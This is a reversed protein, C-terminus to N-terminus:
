LCISLSINKYVYAIKWGLTSLDSSFILSDQIPWLHTSTDKQELDAVIYKKLEDQSDDIGNSAVIKHGDHIIFAQDYDKGFLTKYPIEVIFLIASDDYAQKTMYYLSKLQQDQYSSLTLPTSNYKFYHFLYDVQEKALSTESKFFIDKPYSGDQSLVSSYDDLITVSLGYDLLSLNTSLRKLNQYIRLSNYYYKTSDKTTSWEKLEPTRTLEALTKTIINLAFDSNHARNVSIQNITTLYQNKQNQFFNLSLTFVIISVLTISSIFFTKYLRKKYKGM